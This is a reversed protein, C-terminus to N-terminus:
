AELYQIQKLATEPCVILYLCSESFPDQKEELEEGYWYDFEMVHKSMKLSLSSKLMQKIFCSCRGSTMMGKHEGSTLFFIRSDYIAM